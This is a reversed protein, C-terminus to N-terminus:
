EDVVQLKERPQQSEYIPESTFYNWFFLTSMMCVITSLFWFSGVGIVFSTISYNALYYRIGVWEIVVDLSTNVPDIILPLQDKFAFVTNSSALELLKEGTMYALPHDEKVMKFIDVLIPPVWYRLHYPIWNNKKVYIYRLDCNVIFSSEFRQWRLLFIYSLLHFSQERTCIAHLNMRISFVLDRNQEVFALLPRMDVTAKPGPISSQFNMPIGMRNRPILMKYFNLYTVISIPLLVFAVVTFVIILYVVQRTFFLPIKVYIPAM